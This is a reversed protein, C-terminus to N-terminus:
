CRPAQILTCPGSRSHQLICSSSWNGRTLDSDVHAVMMSVRADLHLTTFERRPGSTTFSCNSRRRGRLGGGERQM